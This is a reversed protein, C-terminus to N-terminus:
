PVLKLKNFIIFFFLNATVARDMRGVDEKVEAGLEKVETGAERVETGAEKAETAVAKKIAKAVSERVAATLDIKTVIFAVGATVMKTEGRGAV